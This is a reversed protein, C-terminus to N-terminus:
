DFKTLSMTRLHCSMRRSSEIIRVTDPHQPALRWAMSFTALPIELGAIGNGIKANDKLLRTGQKSMKLADQVEVREDSFTEPSM